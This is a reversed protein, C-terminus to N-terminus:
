KMYEAYLDLYLLLVLMLQGGPYFGDVTGM